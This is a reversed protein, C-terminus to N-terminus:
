AALSDYLLKRRLRLCDIAGKDAEANTLESACGPDGTECRVERRTRRHTQLWGLRLQRRDFRGRFPRSADACRLAGRVFPFGCLLDDAPSRKVGRFASRTSKSSPCSSRTGTGFDDPEPLSCFGLASGFSAGFRRCRPCSRPSASPGLVLLGTAGIGDPQAAAFSMPFHSHRPLAM